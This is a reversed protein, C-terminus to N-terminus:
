GISWERCFIGEPFLEFFFNFNSYVGYIIRSIVLDTAIIILKFFECFEVTVGVSFM